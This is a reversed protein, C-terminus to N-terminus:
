SLSYYIILSTSPHSIFYSFIFSKQYLIKMLTVVFIEPVKWDQTPLDKYTAFIKTVPLFVFYLRSGDEGIPVEAGAADNADHEHGVPLLVMAPVGGVDLDAVRRHVGEPKAGVVVGRHEVGDGPVVHSPSEGNDVVDVLQGHGEGLAEGAKEGHQHLVEGDRHCGDLVLGRHGGSVVRLRLVGPRDGDGEAVEVALLHPLQDHVEERGDVGLAAGVDQLHGVRVLRHPLQEVTV